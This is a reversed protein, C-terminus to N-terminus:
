KAAGLKFRFPSSFDRLAVFSKDRDSVVPHPDPWAFDISDWRIGSDNERSYVSTVKYLLTAPAQTVYFGHAVGRPMYVARGNPDLRTGLAKGYAPSGVRIDVTVDLVSGSLCLVLKAHDAPPNQFHLGRLVRAESLTIYDEKFSVELGEQQFQEAHFFKTFSGRQDKSVETDVLFCGPISLSSFKM